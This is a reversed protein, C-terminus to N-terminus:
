ARKLGAVWIWSATRLLNNKCRNCPSRLALLFNSSKKVKKNAYRNKAALQLWSMDYCGTWESSNNLTHSLNSLLIRNNPTSLFHTNQLKQITKDSRFMKTGLLDKRNRYYFFNPWKEMWKFSNNRNRQAYRLYWSISSIHLPLAVAVRFNNNYTFASHM